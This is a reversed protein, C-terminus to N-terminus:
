HSFDYEKGSFARQRQLRGVLLFWLGGGEGDQPQSTKASLLGLILEAVDSAKPASGMEASFRKGIM